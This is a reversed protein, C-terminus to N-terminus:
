EFEPGTLGPWPLYFAEKMSKEIGSADERSLRLEEGRQAPISLLVVSQVSLCDGASSGCQPLNTSEGKTGYAFKSYM